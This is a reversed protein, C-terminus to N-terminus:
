ERAKRLYREQYPRGPGDPVDMFDPIISDSQEILAAENQKGIKIDAQARGNVAVAEGTEEHMQWPTKTYASFHSAQQGQAFRKKYAAQAAKSRWVVRANRPIHWKEGPVRIVDEGCRTCRAFYFGQNWVPEHEVRHGVIACWLSGSSIM